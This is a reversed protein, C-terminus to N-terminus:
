RGEICITCPGPRLSIRYDEIFAAFDQSIIAFYPFVRNIPNKKSPISDMKQISAKSTRLAHGMTRGLLSTLPASGLYIRDDVVSSVFEWFILAFYPSLRHISNTNFIKKLEEKPNTNQSSESCSIFDRAVFKCPDLVLQNRM